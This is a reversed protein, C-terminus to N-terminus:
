KLFSMVTCAVQTRVASLGRLRSLRDPPVHWANPGMQVWARIADNDLRVTYSLDESDMVRFHSRFQEEVKAQKSPPIDLLPMLDRVEKMHEPRPLVILCLGEPMLTEAFARPNRPAFLNLLVAARGRRVYLGHEVDVVACAHGMLRSATLRVADKSADVGVLGVSDFAMERQLHEALRRLYYGEGCGVDVIVENGPLRTTAGLCNLHRVVRANIADSIPQFFGRELFIRRAHLMPGTDGRRATQHLNVYGSRARDFAHGTVCTYRDATPELPQHCKPCSFISEHRM